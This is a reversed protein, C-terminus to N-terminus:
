DVPVTSSTRWGVQAMVRHGYPPMTGTTGTMAPEAFVFSRGTEATAGVLLHKGARVWAEGQVGWTDYEADVDDGPGQFLKLHARYAVADLYLAALDVHLGISQKREALAANGLAPLLHQRDVADLHVRPVGLHAALRWSGIGLDPRAAIDEPTDDAQDASLDLGGSADVYVGHTGLGVIELPVLSLMSITDGSEIEDVALPFLRMAFDMLDSPDRHYHLEGFWASATLRALWERDGDISRTLISQSMAVQGGAISWRRKAWYYRMGEMSLGAEALAYRGGDLVASSDVSPRVNLGASEYANIALAEVKHDETTQFNEDELEIAGLCLRASQALSPGDHSALSARAGAEFLTCTPGSVAVGAAVALEGANTRADIARRDGAGLAVTLYTTEATPHNADALLLGLELTDAAIAAANALRSAEHSGTDVGVKGALDSLDRLAEAFHRVEDGTTPAPAPAAPEAPPEDVPEDAPQAHALAPLAVLATVLICIRM